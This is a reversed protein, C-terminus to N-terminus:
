QSPPTDISGGNGRISAHAALLVYVGRARRDCRARLQSGHRATRHPPSQERRVEAPTEAQWQGRKTRFAKALQPIMTLSRGGEVWWLRDCRDDFIVTAQHGDATFRLGFGWRPQCGADPPQAWHFNGDVLLAHRAHVLGAAHSIDTRQGVVM